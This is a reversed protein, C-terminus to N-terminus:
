RQNQEVARSILRFDHDNKFVSRPSFRVSCTTLIDLRAPPLYKFLRDPAQQWLLTKGTASAAAVAGM